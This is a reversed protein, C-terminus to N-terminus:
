GLRIKLILMPKHFRTPRRGLELRINNLKLTSTAIRSHSSHWSLRIQVFEAKNQALEVAIKSIM